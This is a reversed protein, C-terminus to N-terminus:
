LYVFISIHKTWRWIHSHSIRAPLGHTGHMEYKFTGTKWTEPSGNMGWQKNHNKKIYICKRWIHIDAWSVNFTWWREPYFPAVYFRPCETTPVIRALPPVAVICLRLTIFISFFGTTNWLNPHFKGEPLAHRNPPLWPTRKVIGKWREDDATNGNSREEEQGEEEEEKKWKKVEINDNFKFLPSRLSYANWIWKEEYVCECMSIFYLKHEMSITIHFRLPPPTLM